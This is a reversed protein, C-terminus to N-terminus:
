LEKLEKDLEEYRKLLLAKHRNLWKQRVNMVGNTKDEHVAELTIYDCEDTVASITCLEDFIDTMEEKIANTLKEKSEKHAAVNLNLCDSETLSIIEAKAAKVEDINYNSFLGNIVGYYCFEDGYLLAKDGKSEGTDVGKRKWYEIVLAGHKKDYVTIVQNKM